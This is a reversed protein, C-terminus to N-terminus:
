PAAATAGPDATGGAPDSGGFDVHFDGIPMATITSNRNTSAPPTASKRIERLSEFLLGPVVVVVEVEDVVVLVVVLGDVVVVVVLGVVVVAGAVVVVVAGAVVVVVAGAVVVVAYDRQTHGISLASGIDRTPRCGLGSSSGAHGGLV